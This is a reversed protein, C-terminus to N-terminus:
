VEKTKLAKADTNDLGNGLNSLDQEREARAPMTAVAADALRAQDADRTYREIEKLTTHGTVAMIAKTTNGAEALRRSAAKRLGHASCQPLGAANCQDRFWNGFGAKSYPAGHQTTLFTLHDRPLALLVERLTPHMAIELAKGTKEQKVSIRGGRVHQWGMRVADGRRQGTYLMLAFALRPKTGIPHREEFAAIEDETWTHFGDSEIKFPKTRAVPNATLLEADVAFDFLMKLIRRLNNAAAKRDAMEGFIDDFHDRRFDRLYAKGYGARFRDIIGRYTAQTSPKLGTFLNSRYYRVALADFSGPPTRTASVEGTSAKAGDLAAAYARMFEEGWPTGPLYTSFGPRQFRIRVKGHRDTARTCYKPLGNRGKVM